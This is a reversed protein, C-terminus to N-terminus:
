RSFMHSWAIETSSFGSNITSCRETSLDAGYLNSNTGDTWMLDQTNNCPLGNRGSLYVKNMRLDTTGGQVTLGYFGNLSSKMDQSEVHSCGIFAHGIGGVTDAMTHGMVVASCGQLWFGHQNTCPGNGATGTVDVNNLHLGQVGYFSWAPINIGTTGVYDATCKELFIYALARTLYSARGRLLRAMVDDLKLDVIIGGPNSDDALLGLSNRTLIDSIRLNELSCATSLLITYGATSLAEETNFGSLRAGSNMLTFLNFGGSKNIQHRNCRSTWSSWASCLSIPASVNITAGAEVEVSCNINVPSDITHIGPPIHVIGCSKNNILNVINM